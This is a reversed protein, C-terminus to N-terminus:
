AGCAGTAGWAVDSCFYDGTLTNSLVGNRLLLKGLAGARVARLHRDLREYTVVRYVATARTLTGSVSLIRFSMRYEPTCCGDDAAERGRGSATISLSRTHGGWAGAFTALGATPAPHPVGAPAGGRLCGFVSERLARSPKAKQDWSVVVNHMVEGGYLGTLPKLSARADGDSAFFSLIIGEYARAGTWIGLQTHPRPRAGGLGVTSEDDHALADVFLTQTVPPTAPPLGAVANPLTVLCADTAARTYRPAAAAAAVLALALAGLVIAAFTGGRRM